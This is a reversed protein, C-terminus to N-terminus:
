ENGETIKRTPQKHLLTSFRGVINANDRIISLSSFYKPSYTLLKYRTGPKNYIIEDDAKYM